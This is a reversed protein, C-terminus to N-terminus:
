KEEFEHVLMMALFVGIPLVQTFGRALGTQYLAENSLSTFQFLLYQVGIAGLFFLTLVLLRRSFAARWQWLLLLIIGPFFLLWNGEFFTNVMVASFVFPQWKVDFGSVSKANGFPLDHLFKYGIWPGGIVVLAIAYACVAEIIDQTQLIRRRSQVFLTLALLGLTLPTYLLLAENKTFLLLGSALAGLRLFTKTELRTDSALASALLSVAAILHASMFVDAYPNSGQILYLPLSILAYCGLLSLFLSTRRRLAYFVLLVACAFWVFHISNILGEDWEGMLDALWTKAMPVTPPYSSLSKMTSSGGPSLVDLVFTQNVFYAKGRYNWNNISDDLYIPTATLLFLSAFLKVVTWTALALILWLKWGHLTSPSPKPQVPAEKNRLLFWWLTGLILLLVAQMALFGVRSLPVGLMASGIFSVFMTLTIGLLCGLVWREGRLLVLTNGEILRVLLWGALTAPAIGLLLYLFIM